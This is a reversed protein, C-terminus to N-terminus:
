PCPLADDVAYIAIRESSNIPNLRELWRDIRSSQITTVYRLGPLDAKYAQVAEALHSRGQFLIFEPSHACWTAAVDRPPHGQGDRRDDVPYSRWTGSYFQPPMAGSDVQVMAFAQAKQTWLFDMADVRARKAEYPITAALLVVNIGWFTAWLGRELRMHRRWWHSQQRWLDWGIVGLSILAPVVPLIFREQKNVFASHFILFLFVPFAIRWWNAPAKRRGVHVAGWLLMLSVPPVLLGGLTLLYQYWPGAPYDGAHEANYAIYGRLQFFPEGWVFLDPSQVLAFTTLATLGIGILSKVDRQLVFAPILGIGILGCQFRFGTAIGIGVGALIVDSWDLRDRRALVWFSLMLPPICIVEVLQHVSLLPWFGGAALIWGVITALGHRKPALARTLLFGLVVISLSYLGHLLRLVVMQSSPRHPGIREFLEFLLYQTGPYAFNGPRAEPEGTQNWPLWNNYDEGAAWSAGVEVVLFHDDHMLYGTSFVAAALRLLLGVMLPLFLPHSPGFRNVTRHGM